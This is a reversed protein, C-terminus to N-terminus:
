TRVYLLPLVVQLGDMYVASAQVNVYDAADHFRLAPSLMKDKLRLRHNDLM